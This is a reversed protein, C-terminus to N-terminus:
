YGVLVFDAPPSVLRIFQVPDKSLQIPRIEVKGTPDKLRPNYHYKLVVFEEEQVLNSVAIIGRDASVEAKGGYLWGGGGRVSFLKVPGISGEPVFLQPNESFMRQAEDSWCVARTINYQEIYETIEETSLDVIKKGFAYGAGFNSFNYKLPIHPYPGGIFQGRTKIGLVPGPLTGFINLGYTPEDQFIGVDEFLIRGANAPASDVWKAVDETVATIRRSFPKNATTKFYTSGILLTLIAMAPLLFSFRGAKRSGLLYNGLLRSGEAAAPFLVIFLHPIFRKPYFHSIIEFREGGWIFVAYFLFIVAFANAKEKQKTARWSFIGEVALLALLVRFINLLGFDSIGLSSNFEKLREGVWFLRGPLFARYGFHEVLPSIWFMNVAIVVLGMGILLIQSLLSAKRLYFLWFITLPLGIVLASAKHAMFLIPLLLFFGPSPIGSSLLKYGASIAYLSGFILLFGSPMGFVLFACPLDAGAWAIVALTIMFASRANEGFNRLAAFTLLPASFVCLFVSLKVVQDGSLSFLAAILQFLQYPNWVFSFGVGGLFEPTYGYLHGSQEWFTRAYDIAYQMFSYDFAVLPNDKIYFTLSGALRAPLIAALALSIIFTAALYGYTGSRLLKKEDFTFELGSM